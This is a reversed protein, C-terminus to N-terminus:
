PQRHHCGRRLSPDSDALRSGVYGGLESFRALGGGGITGINCPGCVCEVDCRIICRTICRTICRLVICRACENIGCTGEPDWSLADRVKAYAKLEAASIDSPERAVRLAKLQNELEVVKAQLKSVDTEQPM